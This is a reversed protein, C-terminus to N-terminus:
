EGKNEIQIALEKSKAQQEELLKRTSDKTTIEEKPKNNSLYTDLTHNKSPRSLLNRQTQIIDSKETLTFFQKYSLGSVILTGILFYSWSYKIVERKKLQYYVIALVLIYVIFKITNLIEFQM